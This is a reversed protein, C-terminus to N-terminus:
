LGTAHPNEYDWALDAIDTYTPITMLSKNPNGRFPSNTTYTELTFCDISCAKKGNYIIVENDGVSRFDTNKIVFEYNDNEFSEQIIEAVDSAFGISVLAAAITMM